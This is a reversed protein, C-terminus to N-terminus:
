GIWLVFDTSWRPLGVLWGLGWALNESSCIPATLEWEGLVENFWGGGGTAGRM